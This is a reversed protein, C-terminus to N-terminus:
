QISKEKQKGMEKYTVFGIIFLGGVLLYIWFPIVDWLDRLSHLINMGTIILSGLFIPYYKDKHITFLISVLLVLGIYLNAYIDDLYIVDIFLIVLSILYIINQVLPIKIFFRLVLIVIYLALISGLIDEFVYDFAALHVMYSIPIIMFFYSIKTIIDNRLIFGIVIILGILILSAIYGNIELLNSYVFPIYLSLLLIVYSISLAVKNSDKLYIDVFIFLSTIIVIISTIINVYDTNILLAFLNSIVFSIFYIIKKHSDKFLKYFVAYFISGISFSYLLANDIEYHLRYHFFCGIISFIFYFLMVPELYSIFPKKEVDFWGYHLTELIFISLLALPIMFITEYNSLVFIGMCITYFVLLLKHIKESVPLINTFVLLTYLSISLGSIIDAYVGLEEVQYAFVLILIYSCICSLFSQEKKQDILVLYNLNILNVCCSIMYIFTHENGLVMLFGFLLYSLLSSFLKLTTSKKNVFNLIMTVISLSCLVTLESADFYFFISTIMFFMTSYAIYLYYEKPYKLYTIFSFGMITFYTIAYAISSGYGVYSIYEGFLQFYLISVVTLVFFSMSLFWYLHASRYLKLKNETFLSLGLFLFGFLCLSITKLPDIMFKWSTTAFLVGSAFVMCVGLKLLYDIKKQEKSMKYVVKPPANISNKKSRLILDFNIFQIISGAIEVIGLVGLVINMFNYRYIKEDEKTSLIYLFIGSLILFIGYPVEWLFAGMICKLIGSIKLYRKEKDM